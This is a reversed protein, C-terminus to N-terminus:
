RTLRLKLRMFLYCLDPAAFRLRDKWTLTRACDTLYKRYMVDIERARKWDSFSRIRVHYRDYCYMTRLNYEMDRAYANLGHKRYFVYRRCAAEIGDLTRVSAGAMISGPHQVYHYLVRGTSVVRDAQYFLRHATFEDERLRGAPYRIHQFLRRDFLRACQIVYYYYYPGQLRGLAQTGTMVEDRIPCCRPLLTGKEDVYDYAAVAIQARNKRVLDYLTRCFRPDLYDDSDLFTLFSGRAARIGTNRAGSLGQNEQSIIRIRADRLAYDELIAPSGDTSGDNVLIIELEQMTQALVSDLCKKLYSASNYVPIIVSVSPTDSSRTQEM